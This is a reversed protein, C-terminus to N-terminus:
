RHEDGDQTSVASGSSSPLSIVFDDDTDRQWTRLRALLDDIVDENDDDVVNRTEQPDTELDYLEAEGTAYLSLKWRGRRITRAGVSEPQDNPALDWLRLPEPSGAQPVRAIGDWDHWEIVVTADDPASDGKEILPRLSKGEMHEPIPLGVLDLVTPTIDVLSTPTTIRRPEAGPARIILPVRVAREFQVSKCVLRLQGMMDGHDSTFVVITNDALGTATLHDLIKGTYTDILSCMGLYRAILEKWGREDNTDVYPNRTAFYERLLRYHQPVTDDMEAYWSAPLEIDDPDYRGDYPSSFPFHPELYNVSLVFPEDHHEDLFNITQEAMFAPKSVEEPLKTVTDRSFVPLGFKGVDTPEYGKTVLWEHYKSNGESVDADHATYVDETSAWFDDFGRQPRLEFGLHWKGVYGGVYGEDRLIEALTPVDADLVDNCHVIGHSHPYMGTLVSARSPSCVPQTCYAQEFMAGTSALEDLHPTKVPSRGSAGIAENHQQDTWIILVNPRTTM